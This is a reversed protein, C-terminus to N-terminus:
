ISTAKSLTYVFLNDVEELTQELFSSESSSRQGLAPNITAPIWSIGNLSGSNFGDQNTPLGTAVLAREFWTYAQDVWSGYSVELPSGSANLTGM